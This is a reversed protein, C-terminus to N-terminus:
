WAVVDHKTYGLGHTLLKNTVIRKIRCTVIRCYCCCIQRLNEFINEIVRGIKVYNVDKYELTSIQGFLNEIEELSCLDFNTKKLIKLDEKLKPPPFVDSRAELCIWRVFSELKFKFSKEFVCCDKYDLDELTKSYQWLSDFKETYHEVM